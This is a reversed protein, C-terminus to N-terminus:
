TLIMNESLNASEVSCEVQELRHNLEVFKTKWVSSEQFDILEMELNEMNPIWELSELELDDFQITHPRRLFEFTSELLRFQAFRDAFIKRSNALIESYKELLKVKDMQDSFCSYEAFHQKLSPFYKLREVHLDKIFVELKKEFAKIHGFMTDAVHGRGQLKVNLENFHLTFDAFFMLDSLWDPSNLEPFDQDKETLFLRIENILEVFRNMVKGRSLWRVNNYMLLGSYQSDVEELLNKFLRNNLARSAIFNVIKTVVTLVDELTKLSAKACLAEQHIICHFQIMQHKAEKLLLQVFGSHKGVMSPAGDTTVSVINEFSLNLLLFQTKIQDLVDQGTTKGSLTMLKLLEEKMVNGAPYRAIVALRAQNTVDTSEDLCISFREASKLDSLLQQQIDENMRQMRVKITNRSIPMELIRSRIQDKNPFDEFLTDTCALFVEKVFDGESIPKGHKAVCYAVHYSAATINNKTAFVKKFGKTQGEYQKLKRNIFEKRADESLEILPKHNTEFHRKVNFSRSVVADNCLCCFAKNNREIVGYKETWWDCFQRSSGCADSSSIKQSKCKSLSM